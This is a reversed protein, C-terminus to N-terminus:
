WGGGGGGGGGGGSSGGGSSGGASSSASSSFSTVISNFAVASFVANNGVYWTPTTNTTEYYQGLQKNWQDEQGFLVAYPLVREYLKVLQGKDSGIEGVKEAGEPSQLMKLRETEAAGIYM